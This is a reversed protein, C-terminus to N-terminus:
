PTPESAPVRGASTGRAGSVGPAPAPPSPAQPGEAPDAHGANAEAADARPPEGGAEGVGGPRIREHGGAPPGHHLGAQIAESADRADGQRAGRLTRVEFYRVPVLRNEVALAETKLLTRFM